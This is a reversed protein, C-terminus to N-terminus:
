NQGTKVENQGTAGPTFDTPKRHEFILFPNVFPVNCACFQNAMFFWM